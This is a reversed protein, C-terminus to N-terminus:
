ASGALCVRLFSRLDVKHDLSAAWPLLGPEVLLGACCLGGCSGPWARLFGSFCSMEPWFLSGFGARLVALWAWDPASGINKQFRGMAIRLPGAWTCFSPLCGLLALGFLGTRAM